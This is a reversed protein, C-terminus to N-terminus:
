DNNLRLGNAPDDQLQGHLQTAESSGAFPNVLTMAVHGRQILDIDTGPSYDRAHYDGEYMYGTLNPSYDAPLPARDLVGEGIEILEPDREGVIPFNVNWYHSNRLRGDLVYELSRRTLVRAAEWVDDDLGRHYQSVAIAPLGFFTAERAAAVTGSIFNDLGLNSGHNVGSLVLDVHDCLHALALRVCDSPYGDVWFRGEDVRQTDLQGEFTMQHSCGSHHYRPAVVTVDGFQRAVDALISIGQADIGDDNTVLIKM